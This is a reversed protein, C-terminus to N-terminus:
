KKQTNQNNETICTSYRFYKIRQTAAATNWGILQHINIFKCTGMKLNDAGYVKVFYFCLIEQM